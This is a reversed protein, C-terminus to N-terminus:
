SASARDNTAANGIVWAVAARRSPWHRGSAANVTAHGTCGLGASWRVGGRSGLSWSVKGLVDEPRRPPEKGRTVLYCVPGRSDDHWIRPGPHLWVGLARDPKSGYGIHDAHTTESSLDGEVSFFTVAGCLHCSCRITTERREGRFSDYTYYSVEWVDTGHRPCGEIHGAASKYAFYLSDIDRGM